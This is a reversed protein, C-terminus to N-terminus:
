GLPYNVGLNPIVATFPSLGIWLIALSLSDIPLIGTPPSGHAVRAMCGSSQLFDRNVGGGGKRGYASGPGQTPGLGM